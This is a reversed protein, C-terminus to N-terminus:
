GSWFFVESNLFSRDWRGVGCFAFAGLYCNIRSRLESEAGGAIGELCNKFMGTGM